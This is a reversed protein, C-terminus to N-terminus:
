AVSFLISHFFLPCVLFVSLCFFVSCTSSFSALKALWSILRTCLRVPVTHVGAPGILAGHVGTPINFQAISLPETGVKLGVLQGIAAQTAQVAQVPGRIVIARSPYEPKPIAVRVAHESQLRQIVSGGKGILLSHKSKPVYVTGTLNAHVGADPLAAADAAAAAVAIPEVVVAVPASPAFQDLAQTCTVTWDVLQPQRLKACLAAQLKALNDVTGVATALVQGASRPLNLAVNCSSELARLNEGGSGVVAGMQGAPLQFTATALPEYSALLGVVREIHASFPDFVVHCVRCVRVCVCVCVCQYSPRSTTYNKYLHTCHTLLRCACHNQTTISPRGTEILIVLCVCAMVCVFVPSRVRFFAFGVCMATSTANPADTTSIATIFIQHSDEDSRPIIVRVHYTDQIERITAGGKGIILSHKSKPLYIVSM